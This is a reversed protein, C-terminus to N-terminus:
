VKRPRGVQCLVVMSFARVYTSEAYKERIEKGLKTKFIEDILAQRSLDPCEYIQGAQAPKHLLVVPSHKTGAYREIAALVKTECGASGSSRKGKKRAAGSSRGATASTLVLRWDSLRATKPLFNRLLVASFLRGSEFDRQESDLVPRKWKGRSEPRRQLVPFKGKAGVETMWTELESLFKPHCSHSGLSCALWIWVPPHLGIDRHEPFSSGHAARLRVARELGSKSKRRLAVDSASGLWDDIDSMVKAFGEDDSSGLEGFCLRAIAEAVTWPPSQLLEIMMSMNEVCIRSRRMTATVFKRDPLHPICPLFM